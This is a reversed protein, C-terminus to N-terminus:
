GEGSQRSNSCIVCILLPISIWIILVHECTVKPEELPQIKKQIATMLFQLQDESAQEVLTFLTTTRESEELVKFGASITHTEKTFITQIM